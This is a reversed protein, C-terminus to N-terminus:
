AEKFSVNAFTCHNFRRGTLVSGDLRQAAIMIDTIPDGHGPFTVSARGVLYGAPGNPM